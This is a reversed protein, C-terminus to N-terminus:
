LGTTPKKDCHEACRTWHRRFTFWTKTVFLDHAKPVHNNAYLYICELSDQIQFFTIENPSSPCAASYKGYYLLVAVKLRRVSTTCAAESLASLIGLIVGWPSLFTTKTIFSAEKFQQWAKESSFIVHKSLRTIHWRRPDAFESSLKELRM